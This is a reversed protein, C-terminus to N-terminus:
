QRCHFETSWFSSIQRLDSSSSSIAGPVYLVCISNIAWPWLPLSKLIEHYTYPLNYVLAALVAMRSWPQRKTSHVHPTNGEKRWLRLITKQSGKHFYYHPFTFCTASFTAPIRGGVFLFFSSNCELNNLVTCYLKGKVQRDVKLLIIMKQKLFTKKKIWSQARSECILM